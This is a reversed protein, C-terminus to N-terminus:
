SASRGAFTNLARDMSDVSGFGCLLAVDIRSRISENILRSAMEVRLQTVFKMPTVAFEALFQRSFNRPGMSVRAALEEVSLPEGLNELIWFPLDRLRLRTPAQLALASSFQSQWGPRRVYMVLARAIRLSIELGLDEEIMALALDIGSTVGASTSLKGSRIFIPEPDVSLAPFDHALRECYYWHTTVRQQDLLGAAALMFAGTCISGFRRAQQCHLRLWDGLGPVDSGTWVGNGGIALLTDVPGEFDRFSCETRVRLVGGEGVIDADTASLLHVRYHRGNIRGAERLKYAAMFFAEAPGAIELSSVTPAALLVVM